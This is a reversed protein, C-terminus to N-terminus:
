EARGRKESNGSVPEASSLHILFSVVDDIETRSLRIAYDTPMRSQESDAVDRVESKDFFHFSGDETQLQLSFNDENRLIGTIRTGEHTTVTVARYGNVPTRKTRLIEDALELASKASGYATLDPGLFGGQGQVSHCKSCEGKGFFIAEGRKSNGAAFTGAKRGQLTHIYGVLSGVEQARLSHFAPMGTGTVGNRIIQALEADSSRQVASSTVLNPAKESGRGDLGHCGACNAAFARRGAPLSFSEQARDHQGRALQPTVALSLVFLAKPLDRFAKM